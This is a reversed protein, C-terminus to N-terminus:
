SKTAADIVMILHGIISAGPQAAQRHIITSARNSWSERRTAAAVSTKTCREKGGVEQRGSPHNVNM